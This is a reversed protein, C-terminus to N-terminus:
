LLFCDDRRKIINMVAGLSVKYKEVSTQYTMGNDRDKILSMKEDLTLDHHIAPM